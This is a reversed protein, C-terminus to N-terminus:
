KCRLATFRYFEFVKAAEAGCLFTLFRRAEAQNRSAKVIAAPYVIRNAAWVAPMHFRPPSPTSGALFWADSEYVFAAEVSGNKVAALAARVNAVPVLKPQFADWLGEAILWEKAYVGAPVAEPDGIAIRRFEPRTLIHLGPHGGGQDPGAMLLVLRNGLLKLRTGPAIAGAKDVIDMQMDDASIFVDVPAGNVIQRALTNSAAFNFRVKGGGQRVYLPALEELVNTLSIAASVTILAPQQVSALSVVAAALWMRM